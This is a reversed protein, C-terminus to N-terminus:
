IFQILLPKIALNGHILLGYVVISNYVSHLIMSPYVSNCTDRFYGFLFSPIFITLSWITPGYLMHMGVFLVSTVINATTIKFLAHQGWNYKSLQGQIIGRFLLEEILPQWILVSVLMKWQFTLSSSFVPVWDHIGWLALMGVLVALIFRSDLYFQPCTLLGSDRLVHTLNFQLIEKPMNKLNPYKFDADVTDISASQQTALVIAM